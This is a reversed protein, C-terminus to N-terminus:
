ENVTITVSDGDELDQHDGNALRVTITHEGPTLGRIVDDTNEGMVMAYESDGVFIHWHNGDQGITFNEVEVEVVVDEDHAFTAGDAPSVIRIVAGDNPIMDHSEGDEHDHNNEEHEHNNDSHNNNAENATNNNSSSSSCAAAFVAVLALLILIYLKRLM